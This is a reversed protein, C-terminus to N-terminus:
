GPRCGCRRRAPWRRLPVPRRGQAETRGVLGAAEEVRALVDGADGAALARHGVEGGGGGARRGVRRRQEGAQALDEAQELQAVDQAVEQGVVHRRVGRLQEVHDAGHGAPQSPRGRQEARGARHGGLQLVGGGVEVVEEVLRGRRARGVEGGEDVARQPGRHGGPQCRGHEVPQRHRFPCQHLPRQLGDVAHEVRGAQGEIRGRQQGVEGGALRDGAHEVVDVEFPPRRDALPRRARRGVGDEQRRFGRESSRATSTRPPSRTASGDTSTSAWSVSKVRCSTGPM